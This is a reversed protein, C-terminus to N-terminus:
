RVYPVGDECGFMVIDFLVRGDDSGKVRVIGSSAESGPVLNSRQRKGPM